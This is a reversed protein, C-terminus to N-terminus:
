RWFLCLLISQLHPKLLTGEKCTHLGSNLDLEVL